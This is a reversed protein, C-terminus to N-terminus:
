LGLAREDLRGDPAMSYFLVANGRVPRYRIGQPARARALADPPGL